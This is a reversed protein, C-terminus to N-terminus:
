SIKHLNTEEKGYDIQTRFVGWLAGPPLEVPKEERPYVKLNREYFAKM